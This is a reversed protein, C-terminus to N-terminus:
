YRKAVHLPQEGKIYNVIVEIIEEAEWSPIRKGFTVYGGKFLLTIAGGQIIDSIMPNVESIYENTLRLGLVDKLAVVRPAKKFIYQDTLTIRTKEIVVIEEHLSTMVARYIFFLYVSSLMVLGILGTVFRINWGAYESQILVPWVKGGMFYTAITLLIGLTLTLKGKPNIVITCRNDNVAVKYREYAM